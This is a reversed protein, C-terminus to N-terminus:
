RTQNDDASSTPSASINPLSFKYNTYDCVRITKAFFRMHNRKRVCAIMEHDSISTSFVKTQKIVEPRTTAIIDILTSSNHAFRTPENVLQKYGNCSLSKKFDKNDSAKSFDVNCDGMVISELNTSDITTLLGNFSDNFNAPLYKSGSPLRFFSTILFGKANKEFNTFM